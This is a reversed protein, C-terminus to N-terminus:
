RASSAVYRTPALVCAFLEQPANWLAQLVPISFAATKGSGTQALGIVDSGNLAAPIAKAQIPTPAKFELATCAECIPEIVGLESFTEPAPTADEDDGAESGSARAFHEDDDSSLDEHKDHQDPQKQESAKLPKYAM